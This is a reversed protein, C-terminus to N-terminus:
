FNPLFEHFIKRFIKRFIENFFGEFNNKSEILLKM